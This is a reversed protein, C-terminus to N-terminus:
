SNWENKMFGFVSVDSAKNIKVNFMIELYSIKDIIASNKKFPLYDSFKPV